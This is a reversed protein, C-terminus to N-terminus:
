DVIDNYVLWGSPWAWTEASFASGTQTGNEDTFDQSYGAWNVGEEHGHYYNTYNGERDYQDWYHYQSDAHWPISTNIEGRFMWIDQIRTLYMKRRAGNSPGCSPTFEYFGTKHRNTNSARSQLSFAFEVPSGETARSLTTAVQILLGVVVFQLITKM